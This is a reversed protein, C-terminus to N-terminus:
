YPNPLPKDGVPPVAQMPMSLGAGSSGSASASSTIGHDSVADVPSRVQNQAPALDTKPPGTAQPARAPVTPTNASQAEALLPAGAAVGLVFLVAVHETKM